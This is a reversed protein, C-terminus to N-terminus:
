GKGAMAKSLASRRFFMWKRWSYDPDILFLGVLLVRPRTVDDKFHEARFM